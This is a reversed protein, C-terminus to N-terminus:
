VVFDERFVRLAADETFTEKIYQYSKESKKELEEFNCYLDIIENAFDDSNDKISLFMEANLIGEVGISTTIVPIQNYIAEVVKGKVGAGYRLPVVSIRSFNYISKLEDDTVYGKIIISESALDLVNQPANSGVVYLKIDPYKKLVLPMIENCLWQIADINPNHAFGGVFLLDNRKKFPVVNKQINKYINIPIAKVNVGTYESKIIDIEKQSYYYSVDVKKMLDFELKEWEKSSELLKSNKTIEYERRERLFHLDVGWYATKISPFQKIFDIYKCSIHPRILFVINIYNSNEKIWLKWNNFYYNGYLVEVGLQNLVTTYPEHKYFNDGIFKVNCGINIFLNVYHFVARSGADKDFWPVYHDIFLITKKNRSKDRALFINEGNPFHENELVNKWKEYFKNQNVVQYQKQGESIGTGNTIGEFHVVVSAPQYMIKYGLKRVSFCLDSDEYYAPAFSEDFGGLKDWISKRFMLAAGSIYDVEKVYNFEPLAPDGMRGYNWASADNWLIGGAEQLLGNEFVLKSGVAGVTDDKEILEVLPFLWNEQVQTDNNLFLIYKGKAYKAANNCNKLFRLNEPTTVVNINSIVKKIYKTLDGSCDNAIIVEYSVKDGSCNFISKLCNYTYNFQNYVPIIISVVPKSEKKFVIPEYDTIDKLSDSNELISIEQSYQPIKKDTMQNNVRMSVGPTGETRLVHFFLGIRKPTIRSLFRIPHSLFKFILKAFLRRKSYLPFIKRSTSSIKSALKWTRSNLISNIDSNLRRESLILQEIHGTKNNVEGQLL